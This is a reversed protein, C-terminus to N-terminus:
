LEMINIHLTGILAKTDINKILCHLYIIISFTEKSKKYNTFFM